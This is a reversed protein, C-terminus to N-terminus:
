LPTRTARGRRRLRRRRRGRRRFSSYLNAFVSNAIISSLSRLLLFNLKHLSDM